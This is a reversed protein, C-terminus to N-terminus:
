AIPLSCVSYKKSKRLQTLERMTYCPIEMTKLTPAFTTPMNRNCTLGM